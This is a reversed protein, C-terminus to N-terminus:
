KVENADEMTFKYGVGWITEIPQHKIGAKKLKDRVYRVHSDVTRIDVVEDIGWINDLLHDRTFVRNPNSAFLYLLDFEKPSYKIEKGNAIVTRSESDIFWDTFSIKHPSDPERVTKAFHRLQVRIRAILEEPEFPKVIYDDAGISLGEVKDSTNNLATLLIIPTNPKIQKMQKCTEIGDLEPMMVDLLVIDISEEKVLEMAEKGNDAEMMYFDNRLYLKLMTRMQAEDDVILVTKKTM